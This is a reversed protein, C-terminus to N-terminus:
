VYSARDYERKEKAKKLIRDKHRYYYSLQRKKLRKEYDETSCRGCRKKNLSIETQCDICLKSGNKYARM